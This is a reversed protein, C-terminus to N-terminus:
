FKALVVNLAWKIIYSSKRRKKEEAKEGSRIRIKKKKKKKGGLASVHKSNQTRDGSRDM